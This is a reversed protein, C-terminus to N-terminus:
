TQLIQAYVLLYSNFFHNILFLILEKLIINKMPPMIILRFRNKQVTAIKPNNM